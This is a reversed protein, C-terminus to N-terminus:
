PAGGGRVEILGASRLEELLRLLDDRCRSPEVDYEELLAALINKVTEPEEVMAWIRAGVASLGFYQGRELELVVVEGGVDSSVQGSAAVVVSALGISM